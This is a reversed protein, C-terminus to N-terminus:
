WAELILSGTVRVPGGAREGPLAEELTVKGDIIDIISPRGGASVWTIVWRDAWDTGWGAVGDELLM